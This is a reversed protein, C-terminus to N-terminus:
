RRAHAATYSWALRVAKAVDDERLPKALVEYGGNRVVENWLYGDVVSSILVICIGGSFSAFDAMSEKWDAGALDRDMFLIQAKVRAMLSRAEACTDAFSADCDHRLCFDSVVQRDTENALLAIIAPKVLKRRQLMDSFATLLTHM